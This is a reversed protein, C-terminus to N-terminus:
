SKVIPHGLSDLGEVFTMTRVHLLTEVGRSADNNMVTM